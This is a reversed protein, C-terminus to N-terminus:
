IYACSGYSFYLYTSFVKRNSAIFYILLM